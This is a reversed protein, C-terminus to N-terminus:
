CLLDSQFFFSFLPVSITTCKMQVHRKLAPIPYIQPVMNHQSLPMQRKPALQKQGPCFYNEHGVSPSPTMCIQWLLCKMPPNSRPSLRWSYKASIAKLGSCSLRVHSCVFMLTPHFTWTCQYYNLCISLSPLILLVNPHHVGKVIYNLRTGGLYHEDNIIHWAWIGSLDNQTAVRSCIRTSASAFACLLFESTPMCFEHEIGQQDCYNYFYSLGDQYKTLTSKAWVHQLVNDTSRWPITCQLGM